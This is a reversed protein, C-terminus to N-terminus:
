PFSSADPEGQVLDKGSFEFVAGGGVNPTIFSDHKEATTGTLPQFWHTFHTAGRESAWEKMALAMADAVTADLPEGAQSLEQYRKWIVKPLRQQMEKPGFINEGFIAEIDMPKAPPIGNVVSNTRVATIAQFRAIRSPMGTELEEIDPD